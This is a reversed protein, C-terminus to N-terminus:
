RAERMLVITLYDNLYCRRKKIWGERVKMIYIFLLIPSYIYHIKKQTLTIQKIRRRLNDKFFFESEVKGRSRLRCM